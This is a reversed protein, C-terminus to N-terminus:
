THTSKMPSKIVFIVEFLPRPGTYDVCVQNIAVNFHIM